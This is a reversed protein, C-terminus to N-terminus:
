SSFMTEAGDFMDSKEIPEAESMSVPRAQRAEEEKDVYRKELIVVIADRATYVDALPGFKFAKRGNAYVKLTKGKIVISDIKDYRAEYYKHPRKLLCVRSKTVILRPIVLNRIGAVLLIVFLIGFVASVLIRAATFAPLSPILDMFPVAVAIYTIGNYVFAVRTVLVWPAVALAATIILWPIYRIFYTGKRADERLITENFQHKAM